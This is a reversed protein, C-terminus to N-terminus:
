AFGYSLLMTSLLTWGMLSDLHREFITQIASMAHDHQECNWLTIFLNFLSVENSFESAIVQEKAMDWLYLIRDSGGPIPCIGSCPPLHETIPRTTDLLANATFAAQCIGEAHAMLTSPFGPNFIYIFLRSPDTIPVNLWIKLFKKKLYSQATM